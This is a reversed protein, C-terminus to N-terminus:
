YRAINKQIMLFRQQNLKKTMFYLLKQEMMLIQNLSHLTKEVSRLNVQLLHLLMRHFSKGLANKEKIYVYGIESGASGVPTGTITAKNNEVSVIETKRVKFTGHEVDTGTQAALAGAVVVGSTASITVGKNKKLSGIKRGGRGTIDEKDQTNNVSGEQVEDMIFELENANNFCTIQDIETIILKDANVM